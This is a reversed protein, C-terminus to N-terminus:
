TPDRAGRRRLWRAPTVVSRKTGSDVMSDSSWFIVSMVVTQPLAVTLAMTMRRDIRILRRGAFESEQRIDVTLSPQAPWDDIRWPRDLRKM